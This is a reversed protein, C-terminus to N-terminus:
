GRAQPRKFETVNEPLKGGSKGGSKGGGSEVEEPMQRLSRLERQMRVIPTGGLDTLVKSLARHASLMKTTEGAETMFDVQVALARAQMVSAADSAALWKMHRLAEEVADRAVTTAEGRAVANGAAAREMERLARQRDRYAKQKERNKRKREEDSMKM